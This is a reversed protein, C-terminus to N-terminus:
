FFVYLFFGLLFLYSSIFFYDLFNLRPPAAKLYETVREVEEQKLPVGRVIKMWM